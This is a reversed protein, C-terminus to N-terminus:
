KNELEAFLNTLGDSTDVLVLRSREDYRKFKKSCPTCHKIKRWRKHARFQNNCSPCEYVYKGSVKNISDGDSRQDYCRVPEAGVELCKRQWTYDHNHGPTLAHAIEHRVTKEVQAWSNLNVLHSSISITKTSHKCQGFRRKAKDLVIRWEDLSFERLLDGALHEADQLNM